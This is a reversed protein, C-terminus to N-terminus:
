SKLVHSRDIRAGRFTKTEPNGSEFNAEGDGMDPGFARM